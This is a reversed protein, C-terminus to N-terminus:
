DNRANLFINDLNAFLSKKSFGRMFRDINEKYDVPNQHMIIDVKRHFDERNENEFVLGLGNDKVRRGMLGHEPVVVPKQYKLAMLQIGSSGFHDKYPLPVFKIRHSKLVKVLVRQPLFKEVALYRNEKILRSIITGTEEDNRKKEYWAGLQMYCCEPHHFVTELLWSLNKRWVVAGMFLVVTKRGTQELFRLIPSLIELEGPMFSREKEVMPMFPDPLYYFNKYPTCPKVQYEDLTIIGDFLLGDGIQRELARSYFTEKGLYFAENSRILLMYTPTHFRRGETLMRDWEHWMYDGYQFLTIDPKFKRQLQRVHNVQLLCGENTFFRSVHDGPTDFVIFEVNEANRGTSYKFYLDTGTLDVSSFKVRFGRELAWDIFNEAYVLHHGIISPDHLLFLKRTTEKERLPAPVEHSERESEILRLYVRAKRHKPNIKLCTEFSQGAKPYQRRNYAMEGMHFYAGSWLEIDCGDRTLKEFGRVAKRYNGQKKYFSALLYIDLPKKDRKKGLIEYAKEFDGSLFHAKFLFDEDGGSTSAPKEIASKIKEGIDTYDKLFGMTKSNLEKVLDRFPICQLYSKFRNILTEQENGRFELPLSVLLHYFLKFHTIEPLYEFGRYFLQGAAKFEKQKLFYTGLYLLDAATLPVLTEFMRCIKGPNMGAHFRELANNLFTKLLEKKEYNMLLPNTYLNDVLLEWDKEDTIKTFYICPISELGPLEHLVEDPILSFDRSIMVESYYKNTLTFIQCFSNKGFSGSRKEPNRFAEIDGTLSSYDISDTGAVGRRNEDIFKNWAEKSRNFELDDWHFETKYPEGKLIGDIKLAIEEPENGNLIQNPYLHKTEEVVGTVILPSKLYLAELAVRPLGESFSPVVVVAANKIYECVSRRGQEALFMVGERYSVGNSGAGIVILKIKDHNKKLLTFAKILQHLGKIPNASGIYLVYRFPYVAESRKGGGYRPPKFLLPIYILKEAPIKMQERLLKEISGSIYIIGNLGPFDPVPFLDTKYLFLKADGINRFVQHYYERFPLIVSHFIILHPRFRTIIERIVLTNWILRYVPDQCNGYNLIKLCTLKGNVRCLKKTKKRTSVVLIDSVNKNHVLIRSLYYFDMAAGGKDPPFLPTLLLVRM